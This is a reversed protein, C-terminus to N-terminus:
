ADWLLLRCDQNLDWLVYVRLFIVCMNREFSQENYSYTYFYRLYLLGLKLFRLFTLHISKAYNWSLINVILTIIPFKVHHSKVHVFEFSIWNRINSAVHSYSHDLLTSLILHCYIEVYANAVVCTLKTIYVEFEGKMSKLEKMDYQIKKRM